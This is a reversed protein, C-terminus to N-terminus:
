TELGLTEAGKPEIDKWWYFLIKLLSALGMKKMGWWGRFTRYFYYILWAKEKVIKMKKQTTLGLELKSHPTSIYCM